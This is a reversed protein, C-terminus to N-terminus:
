EDKKVETKQSLADDDENHILMLFFGYINFGVFVTIATAIATILGQEISGLLIGAILMMLSTGIALVISVSMVIKFRKKTIM